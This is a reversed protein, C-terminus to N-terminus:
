REGTAKGQRQTAYDAVCRWCCFTYPPPPVNLPQPYLTGMPEVSWWMDREADRTTKGCQDCSTLQAM